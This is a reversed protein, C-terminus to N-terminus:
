PTKKTQEAKAEAIRAKTHDSVRSAMKVELEAVREWHQLRTLKDEFSTVWWAGRLLFYLGGVFGVWGFIPIFSSSIYGLLLLIIGRIVYQLCQYICLSFGYAGDELEVFYRRAVYERSLSHTKWKSSFATAGKTFIDVLKQGILLVLWFLAAGLAGQVIAPWELIKKVIDM